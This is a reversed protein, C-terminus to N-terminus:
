YLALDDIWITAQTGPKDSGMDLVFVIARVKDLDLRGDSHPNISRLRAFPLAVRRWAESTRVSAFWWETGADTSAPNADRVQVWIRYVGDGRMSFVLGTRGRLDRKEWSVIACFPAPHAPTPTGLRCEIRAAGKGDAGAHPAVIPRGLASSTDSGPEFVTANDFNDIAAAAQPLPPESPWGARRARAEAAEGSFVYIPNSVIWPIEWGAVRVELRYVGSDVHDFTLHAKAEAVSVGDRLLRLRAGAPLAGGARLRLGEAPAVTDGMTWRRGAAEALFFFGDAPALADLGLYARGRALADVIARGDATANGTLPADLLVHNQALAFLAQYSPFRLATQKRLLLRSHADAGVIGTVDRQNLLADWRSLVSDPPTLSGLLAYRPNLSYLVATRLLRWLGAERWQSDGNLLEMGWPGSLDWGAWRFDPRLSLPHAAFSVGGLDRIDDLADRADGSFRYSPDSLGLGLVHGLTTSVETGVLALLKGHYGELPKADLTNHDTIAVFGLGAAQAAAIVEEPTGGGDSLTTHVHVVGAVRTFGDTAPAGTLPLPRRTAV